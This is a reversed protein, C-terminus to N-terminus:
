NSKVAEQQAAYGLLDYFDKSDKIDFIQEMASSFNKGRGLSKLLTLYKDRGFTEIISRVMLFSQKYALYEDLESFRHTLDELTFHKFEKVDQGWEYGLFTYEMFLASGETFWMPFNGKALYDVMLHTLEHIFVNSLMEPHEPDGAASAPLVM